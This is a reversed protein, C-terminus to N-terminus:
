PYGAQFLLVKVDPLFDLIILIYTYCVFFIYIIILLKVTSERYSTFLEEYSKYKEILLIGRKGM